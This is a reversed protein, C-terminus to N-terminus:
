FSSVQISDHEYFKVFTRKLQITGSWNLYFKSQNLMGSGINGKDLHTLNTRPDTTSLIDSVKQLKANLNDGRNIIVSIFVATTGGDFVERDM